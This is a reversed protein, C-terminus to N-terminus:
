PIKLDESTETEGVNWPFPPMNDGGGDFCIDKINKILFVIDQVLYRTTKPKMYSSIKFLNITSSTEISQLPSHIILKTTVKPLKKESDTSATDIDPPRLLLEKWFIDDNNLKVDVSSKVSKPKSDSGILALGRKYATLFIGYNSIQSSLSEDNGEDEDGEKNSNSGKCDKENIGCVNTDTVDDDKNEDDDGGRFIRIKREIEFSSYDVALDQFSSVNSEKWLYVTNEGGRSSGVDLLVEVDIWCKGNDCLSSHFLPKVYRGTKM